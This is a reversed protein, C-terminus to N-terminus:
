LLLLSFLSLSRGDFVLEKLPVGLTLSVVLLGMSSFVPLSPVAVVVWVGLGFVFALGPPPAVFFHPTWPLNRTHMEVMWGSVVGV